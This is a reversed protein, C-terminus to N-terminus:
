EQKGIKKLMISELEDFGIIRRQHNYRSDSMYNYWKNFEPLGYDWVKEFYSEECDKSNSIFDLDSKIFPYVIVMESKNGMLDGLNKVRADMDKKQAM